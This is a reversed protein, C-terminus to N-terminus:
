RTCRHYVFVGDEPAANEKQRKPISTHGAREKSNDKKSGARRRSRGLAAFGAKTGPADIEGCDIAANLWSLLYVPAPM